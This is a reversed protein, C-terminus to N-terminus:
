GAAGRRGLRDAASDIVVRFQLQGARHPLIVLQLANHGSVAALNYAAFAYGGKASSPALANGKVPIVAMLEATKRAVLLRGEVAAVRAPLSVTIATLKDRQASKPATITVGSALASTAGKTPATVATGAPDTPAPSASGPAAEATAGITM